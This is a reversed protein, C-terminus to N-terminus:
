PLLEEVNWQGSEWSFYVPNCHGIEWQAEVEMLCCIAWYIGGHAIILVTGAQKLAENIGAAARRLFANVPEQRYFKAEKGLATMQRWTDLDCESLSDIEYQDAKLKKCCLEKTEKARKLPSFCISRVSLSSILPEIASAQSRGTSNLGVDPYNGQLEPPLLNLDTEGHRMYYFEKKTIM